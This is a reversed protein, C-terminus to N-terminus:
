DADSKLRDRIEFIDLILRVLGSVALISFVIGLGVTMTM